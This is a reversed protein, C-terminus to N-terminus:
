RRAGPWRANMPWHYGGINAFDVKPPATIAQHGRNALAAPGACAAVAGAVGAMVVVREVAM